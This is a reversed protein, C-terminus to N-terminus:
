MRSRAGAASQGVPAVVYDSLVVDKTMEWYDALKWPSNNVVRGQPTKYWSTCGNDGWVLTDLTAMAKKNYEAYVDQKCELSAIQPKASLMQM